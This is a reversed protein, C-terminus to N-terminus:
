SNVLQISGFIFDFIWKSNIFLSILINSIFHNETANSLTLSCTSHSVSSFVVIKRKFSIWLVFSFTLSLYVQWSNLIFDIKKKTSHSCCAFYLMNWFIADFTLFSFRAFFFFIFLLLITKKEFFKEMLINNWKRFITVTLINTKNKM